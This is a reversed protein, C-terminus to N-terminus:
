IFEFKDAFIIGELHTHLIISSDYRHFHTMLNISVIKLHLNKV